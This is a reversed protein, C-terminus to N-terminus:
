VNSGSCSCGVVLFPSTSPLAAKRCLSPFTIALTAAQQKSNHTMMYV